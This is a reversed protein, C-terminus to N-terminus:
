RSGVIYIYVNWIYGCIDNCVRGHSNAIMWFREPTRNVSPLHKVVNAVRRKSNGLKNQPRLAHPSFAHPHQLHPIYIIYPTSMFCILSFLVCCYFVISLLCICYIISYTRFGLLYLTEGGKSVGEGAILGHSGHAEVQKKRLFGAEAQAVEVVQKVKRFSVQFVRLSM